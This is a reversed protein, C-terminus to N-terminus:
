ASQFSAVNAMAEITAGFISGSITKLSAFVGSDPSGAATSAAVSHYASTLEDALTKPDM